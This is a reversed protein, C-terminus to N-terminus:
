LPLAAARGADLQRRNARMLGHVAWDLDLPEGWWRIDPTDAMIALGRDAHM